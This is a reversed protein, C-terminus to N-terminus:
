MVYLRVLKEQISIKIHLQSIASEDEKQQHIPGNVIGEDLSLIELSSWTGLKGKRLFFPKVKCSSVTWLLFSRKVHGQISSRRTFLSGTM